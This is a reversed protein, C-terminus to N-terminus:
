RLMVAIGACAAAWLISTFTGLLFREAVVPGHSSKAIEPYRGVGKIALTIAIAEPWGLLLCTTTTVREFFGIWAGGPLMTPEVEEPEALDEHVPPPPAIMSRRGSVLHLLTTTVPGGCASLIVVLVAAVGQLQVHVPDATLSAVGAALAALVVGVWVVGVWLTDPHVDGGVDPSNAAHRRSRWLSCTLLLAALVVLACCAAAGTSAPFTTTVALM